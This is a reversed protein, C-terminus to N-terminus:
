ADSGVRRWEVARMGGPEGGDETTALWEPPDM